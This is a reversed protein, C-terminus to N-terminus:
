LCKAIKFLCVKRWEGNVMLYLKATNYTGLENLLLGYQALNAAHQEVFRMPHKSGINSNLNTVRQRM